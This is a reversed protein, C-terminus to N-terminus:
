SRAVIRQGGSDLRERVRLKLEQFGIRSMGGQIVLAEAPKMRGTDTGVITRERVIRGVPYQPEPDARVRLVIVDDCLSAQHQCGANPLLTHSPWQVSHVSVAM